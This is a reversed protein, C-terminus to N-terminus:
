FKDVYTAARRDLETISPGYSMLGSDEVFDPRDYIAPLRTQVAFDTIQKRRSIVAPGTLVLIADARGKNAQQFAIEIEDPNRLDLYNLQM